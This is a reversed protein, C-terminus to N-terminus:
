RPPFSLSVATSASSRGTLAALAEELQGIRLLLQRNQQLLQWREIGQRLVVLLEDDDWPKAVFRHVEGGNVAGRLLGIDIHGSILVRTTEPSLERAFRLLAIGEMGAMHQDTLVVAVERSRLLEIAEAGTAARLVEVPEFALLRALANLIPPEDDVVLVPATSM